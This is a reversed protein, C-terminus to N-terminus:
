YRSTPTFMSTVGCTCASRSTVSFIVISIEDTTPCDLMPPMLWGIMPCFFISCSIRRASPSGLRIPPMKSSEDVLDNLPIGPNAEM